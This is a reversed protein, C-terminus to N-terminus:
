QEDFMITQINLFFIIIVLLITLIGVWSSKWTSIELKGVSIDKLSVFSIVREGEGEVYVGGRFRHGTFVYFIDDNNKKKKCIYYDWKLLLSQVSLHSSM